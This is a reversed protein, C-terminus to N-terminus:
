MITCGGATKYEKHDLVEKFTKNCQIFFEQKSIKHNHNLDLKSMLLKSMVLLDSKEREPTGAKLHISHSDAPLIFERERQIVEQVQKESAKPVQARYQREFDSLIRQILHWSLTLFGSQNLKFYGRGRTEYHDFLREAAERPLNMLQEDTYESLFDSLDSNIMDHIPSDAFPDHPSDTEVASYPSHRGSDVVSGRRSGPRSGPRSHSRLETGPAPSGASRPEERIPEPSASANSANSLRRSILAPLIPGAHHSHSHSHAAAASQSQTLQLPPLHGPLSNSAAPASGPSHDLATQSNSHHRRHHHTHIHLSQHSASYHNHSHSHSSQHSLQPPESLPPREELEKIYGELQEVRRNVMTLENRLTLVLQVLQSHTMGEVASEAMLHLASPSAPAGLSPSSVSLSRHGMNINPTSKLSVLTPPHALTDSPSHSM